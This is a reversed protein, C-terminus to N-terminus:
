VTHHFCYEQIGYSRHNNHQVARRTTDYYEPVGM